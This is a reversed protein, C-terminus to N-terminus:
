GIKATVRSAALQRRMNVLRTYLLPDSRSAQLIARDLTALLHQQWPNLPDDM